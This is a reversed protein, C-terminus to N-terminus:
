QGQIHGNCVLYNCGHGVKVEIVHCYNDVNCVLYKYKMRIKDKVKGINKGLELPLNIKLGKLTQIM